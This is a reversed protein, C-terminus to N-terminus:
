EAFDFFWEVKNGFEVKVPNLKILGNGAYRCPGGTRDGAPKDSGLWRGICSFGVAEDPAGADKWEQWSAVYGCSPCKFRWKFNNLGYRWRAQQVWEVHTM